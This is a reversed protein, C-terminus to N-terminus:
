VVSKHFNKAFLKKRTLKKGIIEVSKFDAHFELYKPYEYAFFLKCFNPTM